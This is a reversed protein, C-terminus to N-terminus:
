DKLDDELLAKSVMIIQGTHMAFHEVVHYIAELVTVDRGRIHRVSQIQEEDVSGLVEYTEELKSRLTALLERAPILSREDFEQQRNRGFARGGVSGIIWEDVNGVLHLLLNGISNSVENPRWWIQEDSLKELCREIKPLYDSELLRRSETVFLQTIQTMLIIGKLYIDGNYSTAIYRYAYRASAPQRPPRM